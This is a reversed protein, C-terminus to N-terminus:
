SLSFQLIKEIVKFLHTGPFDPWRLDREGSLARARGVAERIKETTYVRLNINAKHYGDTYRRLRQVVAQCDADSSDANQFHLLLWLEFCPNSFAIGYGSERAVQTVEDLFQGHQRDVDAVLWREDDPGLDYKEESQALRELVYKPASLGDPGAALVEIHIRRNEFLPFYQAETKEGEVAIVFIRADRVFATRPLLGSRSIRM